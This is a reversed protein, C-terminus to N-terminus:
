YIYIFSIYIDDPFIFPRTGSDRVSLKQPSYYLTYDFLYGGYVGLGFELNLNHRLMIDYGASIVGGISKGCQLAPRWLGTNEFSMYQAKVSIWWSSFVYWNWFRIGAYGTEQKNFIPTDYKGGTYEWPNYRGGATISVKQSVAYNFELNATGLNAWDICNTAISFRQAQCSLAFITLTTIATLIHQKLIM